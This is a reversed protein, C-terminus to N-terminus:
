FKFKCDSNDNKLIDIAASDCFKIKILKSLTFKSNCQAINGNKM